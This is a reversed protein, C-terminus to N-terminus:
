GALYETLDDVIAGAGDPADFWRVRPDRRFWAMQRRALSTTRHVTATRAEELTCGADLFRAFEAYGIAQSSTLWGAYGREALSRVEDVFGEELMLGVRAEIRARLLDTPVRIGAARVNTSPYDDWAAGYSSFQRGTIAIVELARISRRLNGREIKDSAMPDVSALREWMRDAGIVEGETTLSQRTAPDIGPFELRDVVARYYLGSGGVVLSGIDRASLGDVARRAVAQYEAVSFPESPDALDIGHHPVQARESPTPKATGIDMGRYVLMSDASVIERGLAAAIALAATTKGSATPGVLALLTM